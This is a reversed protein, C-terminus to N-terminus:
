LECPSLPWQTQNWTRGVNMDLITSKDGTAGTAPCTFVRGVFCSICSTRDRPPSSEGPSPFPLGSWHEQRSFRLSPPTQHAVTPPTACDSAVSCTIVFIGFGRNMTLTLKCVSNSITPIHFLLGCTMYITQQPMTSCLPSALTLVLWAEVCSFTLFLYFFFIFTKKNM